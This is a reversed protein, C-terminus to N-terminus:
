ILSCQYCRTMYRSIANAVDIMVRGLSTTEEVLASWRRMEGQLVAAKNCMSSYDQISGTPFSSGSVHM